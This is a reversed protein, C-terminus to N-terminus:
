FNSTNIECTNDISSFSYFLKLIEIPVICKHHRFFNQLKQGEKGGGGKDSNTKFVMVVAAFKTIDNKLATTNPYYIDCKKCVCKTVM